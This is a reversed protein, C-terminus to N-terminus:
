SISSKWGTAVRRSCVCPLVCAGADDAGPRARRSGAAKERSSSGEKRAAHRSTRAIQSAIMGSKEAGVDMMVMVVMGLLGRRVGSCIRAWMAREHMCANHWPPVEPPLSQLTARAMLTLQIGRGVIAVVLCRELASLLRSQRSVVRTCLNVVQHPVQHLRVGVLTRKGWEAQAHRVM